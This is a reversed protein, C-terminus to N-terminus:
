AHMIHAALKIESSIIILISRMDDYMVHARLKIESSIIFLVIRLDYM